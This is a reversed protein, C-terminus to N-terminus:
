FLEEFFERIKKYAKISFCRIDYKLSRFFNIFRNANARKKWNKEWEQGAKRDEEISALDDVSLKDKAELRMWGSDDQSLVVYQKPNNKNINCANMVEDYNQRSMVLKPINEENFYDEKDWKNTIIVEDDGKDIFMWEHHLENFTEFLMAIAWKDKITYGVVPWYGYEEKYEYVIKKIM